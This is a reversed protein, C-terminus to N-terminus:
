GDAVRSETRMSWALSAADARRSRGPKTKGSVTLNTGNWRRFKGNLKEQNEAKSFCPMKWFTGQLVADMRSFIWGLWIVANGSARSKPLPQARGM